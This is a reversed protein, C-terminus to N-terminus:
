LSGPQDSSYSQKNREYLKRGLLYLGFMQYQQKQERSEQHAQMSSVMGHEFLEIDLIEELSSLQALPPDVQKNRRSLVELICQNPPAIVICHMKLLSCILQFQFLQLRHMGFSYIKQAALPRHVWRVSQNSFKEPDIHTTLAEQMLPQSCSFMVYTPKNKITKLFAEIHGMIRTPNFIFGGIISGSELTITAKEQVCFEKHLLDFIMCHLQEQEILIGLVPKNKSFIM